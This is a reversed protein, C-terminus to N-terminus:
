AQSSGSISKIRIRVTRIYGAKVIQAIRNRETSQVASLKLCCKALSLLGIQQPEVLAVQGGNVLPHCFVLHVQQIHGGRKVRIGFVRFGHTCRQHVLPRVTQRIPIRLLFLCYFACATQSSSSLSSSSTYLRIKLMIWGAPADGQLGRNIGIPPM